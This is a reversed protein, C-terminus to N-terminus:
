RNGHAPIFDTVDLCAHIFWGQAPQPALEVKGGLATVRDRMNQLMSPDTLSESDLNNGDCGLEISLMMRNLMAQPETASGDRRRDRREDLRKTQMLVSINVQTPEDKRMILTLGEQIIRLVMVKIFEDLQELNGAMRVHAEIGKEKLRASQICNEVGAELGLDSVLGARLERMLDYACLYLDQGLDKIMGALENAENMADPPLNSIAAAFSKIAVLSQGFEDHLLAVLHRHEAEQMALMRRLLSRNEDLRTDVRDRKNKDGM